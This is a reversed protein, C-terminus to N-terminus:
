VVVPGPHWGAGDRWYHQFKGDTRQVMLELNTGYTGQLLGVVRAVGDGFEAGPTWPGLGANHRWWHQIHDGVTVCLEFNGIGSEDGAGYTGEILAPGSSVGTGFSSLLAWGAGPVRRWHQMDGARTAGVYHLEGNGNEPSGTLGLRSQVLSPGSFAFGRGFIERRYWRGPPTTWPASNHKTWHEAAGSRGVAVVEFDGPAGRNSQIFGPIGIPNSMALGGGSVVKADFWWGSVQDFYAHHLREDRCRYVLELNRNFTSQVVAPTDIADPPLPRWQDPSRIPGVRNWQMLANSNERYWHEIEGGVLVFLEFNNNKAGNGGQVLAGTRQRRKAWPDPNTGRVGLFEAPELMNAGYAIRRYGGEGWWQGWSNKVIWFHGDDSFGVVLMIHLGVPVAGQSPTYIQTGAAGFDDYIQMTVVMPGVLDIWDKKQQVDTMSVLTGPRLRMTRGARDSTPSLPFASLAAGHPKATYLVADESWPLCDPDALGYREAFIHAEGGNGWDWPQKGTGRALDGESRRTWLNHEIRIMSEYLATMGFAWCNPASGQSRVSTVFRRGWRNRWDINM